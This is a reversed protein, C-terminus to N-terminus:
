ELNKNDEIRQLEEQHRKNIGVIYKSSFNSLVLVYILMAFAYVLDFKVIFEKTDNLSIIGMVAFMLSCFFLILLSEYLGIVFIKRYIRSRLVGLKGERLWLAKSSKSLIRFLVLVCSIIFLLGMGIYFLVWGATEMSETDLINGGVDDFSVIMSSYDSNMIFDYAENYIEISEYSEPNNLMGMPKYVTQFYDLAKVEDGADIFAGSYNLTSISKLYLPDDSFLVATPANAQQDMTPEFIAVVPFTFEIGNIKFLIVDGIKVGNALSYGEDIFAVQGSLISGSHIRSSIYPGWERGGGEALLIIGNIERGEVSAVQATQIYPDNKQIFSLTNLEEIQHKGPAPIQFDVSSWLYYSEIQHANNIKNIAPTFFCVFFLLSLFLVLIFDKIWYKRLIYNM